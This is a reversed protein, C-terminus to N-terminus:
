QFLRPVLTNMVGIAAGTRSFTQQTGAPLGTLLGLGKGVAWGTAYGKVGGGAAGMAMGFLGTQNPTVVGPRANPDPMRSAGYVAGMTQAATQPGVGSEYIVRGLRDTNILPMQDFSPGGMTSYARKELLHDIAIEEDSAPKEQGDLWGDSPQGQWLTPDNFSRYQHWNVLGPIAGIGAGGLGGIIAGMRSARGKERYKDPVMKDYLWGSGYGLGAGLLGTTLTSALPRGGLKDNPSSPLFNLTNLTKRITPSYAVKVWPDRLQEEELIDRVVHAEGVKESIADLCWEAEQAAQKVDSVIGNGVRVHVGAKKEEPHWYVGIDSNTYVNSVSSRLTVAAQASKEVLEDMCGLLDFNANLTLEKDEKHPM